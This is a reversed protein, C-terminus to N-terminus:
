GIGLARKLATVELANKQLVLPTPGVIGFGHYGGPVVHLEVPVGARTLRRAYDMDEELFLDLSGVVIFAPPLDHLDAARAPVADAPVDPGGPERGLLARWGYRNHAATWTFEGTYPHPDPACGTRDDLMPSDLLQFCISPGERRVRHRNRAMITLAAAHGGGASEGSVAIRAPAIGLEDASAVMWSLAAYCDEVAGPYATEPALRYSTAVVPCGLELARARNAFDNQEPRGIVYGGGHINLLAPRPTAVMQPPTYVLVRVDPAGEPGPVMRETCAVAALAEPMPPLMDALIPGRWVELGQTFDVKPFRSLGAVFERAVLHLSSTPDFRVDM